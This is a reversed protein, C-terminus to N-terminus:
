SADHRPALGRLIILARRPNDVSDALIEFAREQAADAQRALMGLTDSRESDIVARMAAQIFTTEGSTLIKQAAKQRVATATDGIFDLAQSAPLHAVAEARILADADNLGRSLVAPDPDQLLIRFAAMRILPDSDASGAEATKRFAPAVARGALTEWAARRITEDPDDVRAMMAETLKGEVCDRFIRMADCALSPALDDSGEVARRKALKAGSEEPTEGAMPSAVPLTVHADLQIADLTSQGSQQAANEREVIEGEPTIWIRSSGAGEKPTGADPVAVDGTMQEPDPEPLLIDGAIVAAALDMAADDTAVKQLLVALLTARVQRAPNELREAILAVPVELAPAGLAKAAAVRVELDNERADILQLLPGLARDSALVPLREIVCIALEPGCRPLWMLMNDVLAERFDPEFPPALSNLAAVRVRESSDSLGRRALDPHASVAHRLAAARIDADPDDRALAESRADDPALAMLALVRLEPEEAALLKELHVEFSEPAARALAAAARRRAVGKMQNFVEILTAVGIEGMQALARYVPVDVSQGFADMLAVILDDIAEEAQMDGLARIAATQVDLWDEWDSGADEWAVQDESRSTVLAQLLPVAETSRLRALARIAALKVERVPDGALSHLLDEADEPEALPVLAEMADSRVDPDPDLRATLLVARVDKASGEGLAPLACVAASRLVENDSTLFADFASLKARPNLLTDSQM